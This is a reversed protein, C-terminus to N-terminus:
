SKEETSHVTWGGLKALTTAGAATFAFVTLTQAEGDSSTRSVTFNSMKPATATATM